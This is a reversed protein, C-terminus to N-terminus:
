SDVTRLYFDGIATSSMMATTPLRRKWHTGELRDVVLRVASEDFGSEVLRPAPVDNLLWHLILDATPYDVGIEDEDTVGRALDASPPKSVVDDPVGLHRALATVQTKLLDGLPNIPPADDAHWTFYGLLRESKNGTGLPLAGLAASQDWLVMARFRAALNGRRLDSLDTEEADIYADVGATVPIVRPEVGVAEAVARGHVLSDESSTRYPLLIAHVHDPGFARRALFLTVASDVGGSVAVVVSDFGRRHRIEDELFSTLAQTVLECDQELPSADKPDPSPMWRPGTGPTAQSRRAAREM